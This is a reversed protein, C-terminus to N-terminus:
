CAITNKLFGANPAVQALPKSGGQAKNILQKLSKYATVVDTVQTNNYETTSDGQALIQRANMKFFDMKIQGYNKLNAAKNM